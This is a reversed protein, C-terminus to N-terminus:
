VEVDLLEECDVPFEPEFLEVRVLLEVLWSLAALEDVIALLLVYFLEFVILLVEPVEFEVLLVEEDMLEDVFPLLAVEFLVFWPALLLLVTGASSADFVEVV